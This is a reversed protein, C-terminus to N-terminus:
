ELRQRARDIWREVRTGSIGTAEAVAEPDASSLDGVTEIDAEALREAYAAGVGKIADVPEGGAAETLRETADELEASDPEPEPDPDADPEGAVPGAAEAPEAAPGTDTDAEAVAEAPEIGADTDVMTGTSASADTDAASARRIAPTPEGNETPAPAPTPQPEPSDATDTGKVADEGATAPEAREGPEREVTVRSEGSPTREERDLGLLSKISDLLSM